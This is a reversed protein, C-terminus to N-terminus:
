WQPICDEHAGAGDLGRRWPREDDLPQQCFECVDVDGGSAAYLGGVIEKEEEEKKMCRHTLPPALTRQSGDRSNRRWMSSMAM